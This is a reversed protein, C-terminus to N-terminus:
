LASKQPYYTKAEYNPKNDGGSKVNRPVFLARIVRADFRGLDAAAARANGCNFFAGLPIAPKSSIVLPPSGAPRGVMTQPPGPQPFVM